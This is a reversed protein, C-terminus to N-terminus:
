WHRGPRCSCNPLCCGQRGAHGGLDSLFREEGQRRRHSLLFHMPRVWCVNHRRPTGRHDDSFRFCDLSPILRPFCVTVPIMQGENLQLCGIGQLDKCARACRGCEVCKSMDRLISPSSTDLGASQNYGMLQEMEKEGEFHEPQRTRLKNMIRSLAASSRNRVDPDNTVIRMGPTCKTSCGLQPEVVGDIKVVCLGCKGVSRLRPHYCLTPVYVGAARAAEVCNTNKPIRVPKGDVFVEILSDGM